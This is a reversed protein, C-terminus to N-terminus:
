KKGGAAQPHIAIEGVEYESSRSVDYDRQHVHESSNKGGVRFVMVGDNYEKM